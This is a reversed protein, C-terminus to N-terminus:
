MRLILSWCNAGLFALAASLRAFSAAPASCGDLDRLKPFHAIKTAM